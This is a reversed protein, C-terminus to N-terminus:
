EIIGKEKLIKLKRKSYENGSKKYWFIARSYDQTLGKGTEYFYGLWAMSYSDGKNAAKSFWRAASFYNKESGFGKAYHYAKERMAPVYEKGCAKSFWDTAISYDKKVVIGRSYFYGMYYQSYADGNKSLKILWPYANKYEKKDIYYKAVKKQSEIDGSKAKKYNCNFDSGCNIDKSELAAIDRELKAIKKLNEERSSCATFFLILVTAILYKLSNEKNHIIM